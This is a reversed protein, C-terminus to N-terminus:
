KLTGCVLVLINYLEQASIAKMEILPLVRPSDRADEM